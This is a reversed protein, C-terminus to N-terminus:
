HCGLIEASPDDFSGMRVLAYWLSIRFMVGQMIKINQIFSSLVNVPRKRLSFTTRSNCIFVCAEM